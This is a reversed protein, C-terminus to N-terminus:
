KGRFKLKTKTLQQYFKLPTKSYLHIYIYIYIPFIDANNIMILQIKVIDYFNWNVKTNLMCNWQCNSVMSERKKNTYISNCFNSVEDFFSIFIIFVCIKYRFDVFVLCFFYIIANIVKKHVREVLGQHLISWVNSLGFFYTPTM